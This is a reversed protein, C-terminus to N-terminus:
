RRRPAVGLPFEYEAYIGAREALSFGIRRALRAAARNENLITAKLCNLNAERAREVVKALLASGLGGGQWDDAIAIAVEASRPDDFTGIFRAVGVVTTEDPTLAAYVVHRHGDFDMMQNLLSHSMVPITAAFRLYRSRASLGAVADRYIVRDGLRLHRVCVSRGDDLVFRDLTVPASWWRRQETELTPADDAGVSCFM